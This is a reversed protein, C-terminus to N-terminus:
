YGLNKLKYVIEKSNKIKKDFKSNKKNDIGLINDCHELVIPIASSSAIKLNATNFMSLDNESDGFVVVCIEERDEKEQLLVKEIGTGKDINKPVIEVEYDNIYRDCHPIHIEPISDINARYAIVKYVDNLNQPLVRESNEFFNLYLNCAFLFFDANIYKKRKSETLCLNYSDTLHYKKNRSIFSMIINESLCYESLAKIDGSNIPSMYTVNNKYYIQNGNLGIIYTYSIDHYDLFNKITYIDRGSNIIFESNPFAHVIDLINTNLEGNIQLTNDLDCFFYIKKM